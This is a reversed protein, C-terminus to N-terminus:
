SRYNFSYFPCFSVVVYIEFLQQADYYYFTCYTWKCKWLPFCLQAPFSVCLVSGNVQNIGLSQGWSNVDGSGLSLMCLQIGNIPFEFGRALLWPALLAMNLILNVLASCWSSLSNCAEDFWWLIWVNEMNCLAKKTFHRDPDFPIDSWGRLSVYVFLFFSIPASPLIRKTERWLQEFLVFQWFSNSGVALPFLECSWQTVILTQFQPAETEFYKTLGETLSSCCRRASQTRGTCHSMTVSSSLPSKPDPSFPINTVVGQVAGIQAQHGM